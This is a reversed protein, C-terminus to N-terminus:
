RYQQLIIGINRGVRGQWYARAEEYEEASNFGSREPPAFFRRKIQDPLEGWNCGGNYNLTTNPSKSRDIKYSINVHYETLMQAQKKSTNKVIQVDSGSGDAIFTM